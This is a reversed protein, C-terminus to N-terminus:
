TSRPSPGSRWGRGFPFARYDPAQGGGPRSARRLVAARLTDRVATDARGPRVAPVASVTPARAARDVVFFPRRKSFDVPMRERVERLLEATVEDRGSRARTTRWGDCWWAASSRPSGASGPRPMRPGASGPARRPRRLDGSPPVPDAARRGGAPLRLVSGGRPLGRSRLPAPAAAAASFGTSAAAASAAWRAPGSRGPVRPLGGCRASPSGASIVPRPRCTRVLRSRATRRSAAISPAAPVAPRTTSSRRTRRRALAPAAHVAAACKARVM